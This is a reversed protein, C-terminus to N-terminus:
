DQRIAGTPGRRYKDHKMCEELDDYAGIVIINKHKGHLPCTLYNRNTDIYDKHIIFEVGCSKCKYVLYNRM